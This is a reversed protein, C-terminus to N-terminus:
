WGAEAAIKVANIYVDRVTCNEVVASRCKLLIGRAYHNTLTCNRFETEPVEDPDCVLYGDLSEPLDSDIEVIAYRNKIDVEVATVTYKETPVPVLSKECVLELTDGVKPRDVSQTHTGTPAECRLIMRRPSLKEPTYYYTHVNISDDGQGMFECGDLRLKGRCSAFHTADTNTSVHEGAEPVVRLRRVTVNEAHMATIGMGPASHITVNKVTTNKAREILIVPRSHFTHWVYLEREGAPDLGAEPESTVCTAHYEDTFVLKEPDVWQYPDFRGAAAVYVARRMKPAAAGVPLDFEADYHLGEGDKSRYTLRAKSYPKRVHDFTFGDLTVGECDRVSVPEMFGDIMIKAGDPATVTTGRHGTFDLGVDYVYDPSFMVPEPNAGFDGNMVHEQAERALPTSFYYTGHPVVLTSGEEKKAEELARRFSELDDEGRFLSLDVTKEM